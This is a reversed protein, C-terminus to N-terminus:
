KVHLQPGLCTMLLRVCVTCLYGILFLELLHELVGIASMIESLGLSRARAIRVKAESVLLAFVWRHGELGSWFRANRECSLNVKM